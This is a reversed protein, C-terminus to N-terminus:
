TNLEYSIKLQQETANVLNPFLNMEARIATGTELSTLNRCTNEGPFDHVIRPFYLSKLEGYIHELLLYIFSQAGCRQKSFSLPPM